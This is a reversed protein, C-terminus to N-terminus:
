LGSDGVHRHDGSIMSAIADDQVRYDCFPTIDEESGDAFKATVRVQAKKGSEILVYEKPTDVAFRGQWAQRGSADKRDM